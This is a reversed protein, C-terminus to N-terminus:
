QATSFFQHYAKLAKDVKKMQASTLSKFPNAIAKPIGKVAKKSWTGGFYGDVAIAHYYDANTMAETEKWKPHHYVSREKYSIGYEDYDPILFTTQKGKLDPVTAPKFIYEKGDINEKV